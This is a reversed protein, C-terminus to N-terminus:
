KKKLVGRWGSPSYLQRALKSAMRVDELVYFSDPDLERILMAARQSEERKVVVMLMMVNGDRGRGTFQTVRMNYTRLVLALDDGRRTIILLVQNGFALWSEVTIGLYNGAAFGLGYSVAYLPQERLGHIAQAVVFVWITVEFFGLTCALLRRGQVVFVTRM